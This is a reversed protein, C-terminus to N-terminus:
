IEIICSDPCHEIIDSLPNVKQMINLDSVLRLKFSFIDEKKSLQAKQKVFSFM